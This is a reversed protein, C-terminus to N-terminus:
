PGPLFRSSRSALLPLDGAAALAAAASITGDGGVAGFAVSARDLAARLADGVDDDEGVEVVHADPLRERVVDTAPDKASGAACNVVAAVGVGRVVPEVTRKTAHRRIAALRPRTPWVRTTAVGLGAGVGAGAIRRRAVSAGVAAGLAARTEARRIFREIV